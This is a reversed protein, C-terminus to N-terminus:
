KGFRRLVMKLIARKVKNPRDINLKIPNNLATLLKNLDLQPLGRGFPIHEIVPIGEIGDINDFLHIKAGCHPCVASAFNVYQGAVPVELDSLLELTRKADLHSLQAPIVVLVAVDVYKLAALLEEHTGPPADLILYDVDWKVNTFMQEVFDAYEGPKWGLYSESVLAISMFQIRKGDIEAIAPMITIDDEGKIVDYNKVIKMLRHSNAGSIDIDFLGVKYKEALAKAMAVSVTTKGTGGKGSVTAIVRRRM